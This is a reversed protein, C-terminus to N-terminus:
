FALRQGVDTLLQLLLGQLFHSGDDFGDRNKALMALEDRLLKVAGCLTLRWPTGGDIWLQLRQDNAQGPLMAGPAVIPDDAGEGVEPVRDTVLGHAVDEFTMTNRGSWFAPRGGGPLLEDARMHLHQHGGVEERGLDPR